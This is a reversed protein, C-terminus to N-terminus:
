PMAGGAGVGILALLITLGLGMGFFALVLVGFAKWMSAFGHLVNVFALLCRLLAILGLISLIEAVPLSLYSVLTIMLRVVMAVAELWAVLAITAGFGGTGGVMRGTFNVAFIMTVLIGGLILAYTFPSVDITGEPLVIAMPGQTVWVLLVSLVVVLALASWLTGRSAPRAVIRGAVATPDRLTDAVLILAGRIDGLM